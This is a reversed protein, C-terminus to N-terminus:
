MKIRRWLNIFELMQDEMEKTTQMMMMMEIGQMRQLLLLVKRMLFIIDLGMDNFM